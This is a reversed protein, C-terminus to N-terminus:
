GIIIDVHEQKEDTDQEEDNVDQAPDQRSRKRQKNHKEKNEPERHIEPSEAKHSDQVQRERHTAEEQLKMAFQRRQTEDRQQDINQLRAIRISRAVSNHTHIPRGM